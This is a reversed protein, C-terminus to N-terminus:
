GRPIYKALMLSTPMFFNCLVDNGHTISSCENRSQGVRRQMEFRGSSKEKVIWDCYKEHLM